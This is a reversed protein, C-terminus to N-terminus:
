SVGPTLLSPCQPRRIQLCQHPPTPRLPRLFRCHNLQHARWRTQADQPHINIYLPSTLRPSNHILKCGLRYIHRACPYSAQAPRCTGPAPSGSLTLGHTYLCYTYHNSTGERLVKYGRGTPKSPRVVVDISRILNANRKQEEHLARLSVCSFEDSGCFLIRLPDSAKSATSYSPWCRRPRAPTRLLSRTLALFLM